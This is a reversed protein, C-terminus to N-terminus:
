KKELPSKMALAAAVPITAVVFGPIQSWIGPCRSDLAAYLAMGVATVGATLLGWLGPDEPKKWYVAGGTVIGTVVILFWGQRLDPCFGYVKTIFTAWFAGVLAVVAALGHGKVTAEAIHDWARSLAM